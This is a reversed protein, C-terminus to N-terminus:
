NKIESIFFAYILVFSNLRIQNIRFMWPLRLARVRCNKGGGAEIKTRPLHLQNWLEHRADTHVAPLLPERIWGEEV